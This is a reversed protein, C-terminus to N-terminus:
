SVKSEKKVVKYRKHNVVTKEPMDFDRLLTPYNPMSSIDVLVSNNYITEVVGELSILIGKKNIEWQIFDGVQAKKRKM